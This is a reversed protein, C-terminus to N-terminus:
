WIQSFIRHEENIVGKNTNTMIDNSSRRKTSALRKEANKNKEKPGNEFEKKQRELEAM